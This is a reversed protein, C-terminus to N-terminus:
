PILSTRSALDAAPLPSPMMKLQLHAVEIGEKAALEVGERIAGQTSGWGILGIKAKKPGFRTTFGLNRRLKM